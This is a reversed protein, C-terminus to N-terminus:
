TTVEIESVTVSQNPDIVACFMDTAGARHLSALTEVGGICWSPVSTIVPALGDCEFRLVTAHETQKETM